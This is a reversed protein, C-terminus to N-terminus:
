INKTLIKIKEKREKGKIDHHDLLHELYEQIEEESNGNDDMFEIQAQFAEQENKDDLYDEKDVVGQVKNHKQQFVHTLEHIFYREVEVWDKNKLLEENIIIQGNITKASVDLPLFSIKVDDIIEIDEKYKKCLDLYVPQNKLNKKFKLILLRKNM